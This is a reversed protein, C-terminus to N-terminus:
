TCPTKEKAKLWVFENPQLTCEGTYLKETIVDISNKSFEEPLTLVINEEGFSHLCLISEEGHRIIALCNSHLDLITFSQYPNFASESSRLEILKLYDDFYKKNVEVKFREQLQGWDFKERNLTRNIGTVKQGEKWNDTGLISSLYIGPVGPIALAIAQSLLMRRLKVEETQDPSTLLDKFTCNLEYPKVTGFGSDRYSVLGGNSLCTDVLRQVEDDSLIDSVPRMGIGDHSATFNFFCVKDSPLTLEKAWQSLRTSDGTIISWAILPPLAFNYVMHAEDHGSGFYSVNEKHPVNTETIIIVEPAVQHLVDRMVQILEHTQTLHVSHTGAEKWLFAIADLRILTAGHEIYTFLADLVDLLVKYNSYNLDVQDPSFTCWIHRINGDADTFENLLPSTRPRVVESLDTNPDIDHFYDKYEPDNDLYKQFWDSKASIHNVVGDFMIRFKQSIRDVDEWTGLKPDVATYDIVSFGDDSSYPYFPLIHVSNIKNKCFKDLFKNLTKLPMEKKNSIHDGYAILIIDKESQAYDQSKIRGRYEDVLKKIGGLCSIADRRSYIRNLRIEVFNDVQVQNM